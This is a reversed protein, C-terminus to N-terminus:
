SRVSAYLLGEDAAEDLKEQEEHMIEEVPATIDRERSYAPFGKPAPLSPGKPHSELDLTHVAEGLTQRFSIKAIGSAQMAAAIKEIDEVNV